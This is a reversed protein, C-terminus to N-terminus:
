RRVYPHNPVGEQGEEIIPKRCCKFANLFFDGIDDIWFCRPDDATIDAFLTQANVINSLYFVYKQRAQFLLAEDEGHMQEHLSLIEAKYGKAQLLLDRAERHRDISTLTKEEERLKYYTERAAPYPDNTTIGEIIQHITLM